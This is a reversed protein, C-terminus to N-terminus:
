RVISYFHGITEINNMSDAAVTPGLNRRNERAFQFKRLPEYNIAQPVFRPRANIFYIGALRTRITDLPHLIMTAVVGGAVGAVLQEPKMRYNPSQFADFVPKLTCFAVKEIKGDVPNVIMIQNPMKEDRCENLKSEQGDDTEGSKYPEHGRLVM